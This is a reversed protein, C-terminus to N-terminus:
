PTGMAVLIRRDGTFPSRGHMTLINDVLLVDGKIWPFMVKDHEVLGRIHDLDASDIASGDGYFCNHYLDEEEFLSLMAERTEEDLNSPHWQDAQSFFVREGTEPHEIIPDVFETVRLSGDDKWEFEAGVRQLHREVAAPDTEFFTDQWSKGIGMGDHLNQVYKLKKSTFKERVEPALTQLLSRCSMLPTEGGTESPTDCYFFLYRPYLNSFSLENHLSIPYQAPYETSTYVNEGVASRPSDGGKYDMLNPAYLGAIQMFQEISNVDFGRLLIAGHSHLQELIESKGSELTRLLAEFGTEAADGPELVLPYTHDSFLRAKMGAIESPVTAGSKAALQDTMQPPPTSATYAGNTQESGM